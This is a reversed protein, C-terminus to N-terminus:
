PHIKIGIEEAKEHEKVAGPAKRWGEMMFIDTIGSELIKDFLNIMLPKREEETLKTEELAKWVTDFIDTSAFIPYDHKERLGITYERMRKMAEDRLKKRIDTDPHNEGGPGSVFGVKIGKQRKDRIAQGIATQIEGYNKVGKLITPFDIQINQIQGTEQEAM